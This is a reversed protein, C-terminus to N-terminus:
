QQLLTAERSRAITNLVEEWIADVSIGSICPYPANEQLEYICYWMCGFCPMHSSVTVPLSEIPQIRPGYPLFRGFHGGGLVCVARTRVAAAMHVAGTENAVLLKSANLIAALQQLTSRGTWDILPALTEKQIQQAARTDVASGCIVGTWGTERHIRSALESFNKSGWQRGSQAAGPCFVYYPAASLIEPLLSNESQLYPIESIGPSGTICSAFEANLELDRVDPGDHPILRTYWRDTFFKMLPSINNCDGDWGVRERAGCTRVVDDCGFVSRSYLPNIAVGCRLRRIQRMVRYRYGLSKKLRGPNVTIVEDFIGLSEAFDSWAINAVLCLRYKPRAYHARLAAAAGLWLIFDGINDLRVILVHDNTKSPMPIHFRDSLLFFADHM